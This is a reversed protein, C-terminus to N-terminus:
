LLMVLLVIAGGVIGGVFTALIVLTVAIDPSIGRITAVPTPNTSSEEPSVDRGGDSAVQQFDVDHDPHQTRHDIRHANAFPRQDVTKAFDCTQCVVEFSM